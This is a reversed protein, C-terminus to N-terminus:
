PSMVIHHGVESMYSAAAVAATLDDMPEQEHKIATSITSFICIQIALTVNGKFRALPILFVNISSIHPFLGSVQFAQSSACQVCAGTVRGVDVTTYIRLHDSVFPTNPTSTM